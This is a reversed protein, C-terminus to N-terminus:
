SRLYYNITGKYNDAVYRHNEHSIQSHEFSNELMGATFRNLYGRGADVVIVTCTNDAFHDIFKTLIEVHSREYLLDSGIIVDYKEHNQPKSNWDALFFPISQSKNLQTNIDLFKKVEPHYDTATIKAGRYNLLHSPLGLGCGIELFSKGAFDFKSMVQALVFSSDWVVGFFAWQSSSIGLDKAEDFPDDFEQKDRLARIHIDIERFEITEYRYRM